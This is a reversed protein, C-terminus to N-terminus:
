ALDRYPAAASRDGSQEYVEVAQELHEIAMLPDHAALAARGLGHQSRCMLDLRRNERSIELLQGFAGRAQSADGAALADAGLQSLAQVQREVPEQIPSVAVQALATIAFGCVVLGAWPVHKRNLM